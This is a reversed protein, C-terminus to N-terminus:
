SRETRSSLLISKAGARSCARCYSLGTAEAYQGTFGKNTGMAGQSYRSTGYPGYVQNGQVAA